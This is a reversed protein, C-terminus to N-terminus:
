KIAVEDFGEAIGQQVHLIPQYISNHGDIVEPWKFPAYGRPSLMRRMKCIHVPTNIQIAIINVTTRLQQEFTRILYCLEVRAKETLSVIADDIVVRFGGVLARRIMDRAMGFVLPELDIDFVYVGKLMERINDLSVIITEVPVSAPLLDGQVILKAITGKGSGPLGILVIVEPKM